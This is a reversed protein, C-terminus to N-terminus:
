NGSQLINGVMKNQRFGRTDYNRSKLLCSNWTRYRMPLVRFLKRKIRGIKQLYHNHRKIEMQKAVYRVLKNFMQGKVEPHLKKVAQKATALCNQKAAAKLYKKRFSVIGEIAESAEKVYNEDSAGEIAGTVQERCFMIAEYEAKTVSVMM